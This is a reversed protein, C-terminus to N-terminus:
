PDRPSYVLVQNEIALYDAAGNQDALRVNPLRFVTDAFVGRGRVGVVLKELVESVSSPDRLDPCGAVLSSSFLYAFEQAIRQCRRNNASETVGAMAPVLISTMIGLIAVVTIVEVLGFGCRGGKQRAPRNSTM